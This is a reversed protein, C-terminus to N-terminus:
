KAAPTISQILEHLVVLERKLRTQNEVLSKMTYKNDRIKYRILDQDAKLKKIISLKATTKM